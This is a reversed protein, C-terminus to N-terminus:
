ESGLWGDRIASGVSGRSGIRISLAGTRLMEEMESPSPGIHRRNAFDYAEYTTLEFPM